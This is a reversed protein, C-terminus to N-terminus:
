GEYGDRWSLWRTELLRVVSDVLKGVVAFIIIGVFILETNSDQKGINILFGIGSKSGILEAVVLGLWSVALSIRLGLLINPLAAPLILRVIQKYRNFSLVSSVEFLKNDVSRIGLFTNVYLPFFAGNAIIAIKSTEGFGFWLIILPAIALHPVMRLMQVSPDLLQETNRSLGAAIGFALGLSGGIAFGSAARGLSIGLHEALEGSGLLGKFEAAIMFPTPLFVTSIFGLDGGLQWLVLVLVPLVAGVLFRNAWEKGKAGFWTWGSKRASRVPAALIEVRNNM